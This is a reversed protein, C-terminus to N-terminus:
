WEPIYDAAKMDLGPLDHKGIAIGTTTATYSKAISWSDPTTTATAGDFYYEGVLVGHRIVLLCRSEFGSAAAAAAALGAPDLGHDAPDVTQWDPDPYPVIPAGDPTRRPPADPAPDGPNGPGAAVSCAALLAVVAAVLKM